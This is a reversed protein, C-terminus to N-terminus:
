SWFHEIAEGYSAKISLVATAKSSDILGCYDDGLPRPVVGVADRWLRLLLAIM